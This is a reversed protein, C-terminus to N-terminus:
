GNQHETVMVYLSSCDKKTEFEFHESDDRFGYFSLSGENEKTKILLKGNESEVSAELHALGSKRRLVGSVSEGGELSHDEVVVWERRPNLDKEGQNLPWLSSKVEDLKALMENVKQSTEQHFEFRDIDDVSRPDPFTTGDTRRGLTVSNYVTKKAEPAKGCGLYSKLSNIINM